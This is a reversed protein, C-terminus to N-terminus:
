PTSSQLPESPELAAKLRLIKEEAMRFSTPTDRLAVTQEYARLAEQPDDLAEMMRGLSYFAEAKLFEGPAEAIERFGAAASTFDQKGEYAHGLGNLIVKRVVEEGEFRGLAEKYLEIAKGFDGQQYSLDGYVLLSFQAAVTSPYKEIVAELKQVTEVQSSSDGPISVDMLYSSRAEEFMAFAKRESVGSFYRIGAFALGLVVVGAVAVLVPKRYNTIFQIARGSFTFFEDPEKLLQKRTVRRKKAVAGGRLVDEELNRAATL